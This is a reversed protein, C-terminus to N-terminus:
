FEKANLIVLVLTKTLKFAIANLKLVHYVAM